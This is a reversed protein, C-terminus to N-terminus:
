LRDNRLYYLTAARHPVFCQAAAARIHDPTIKRYLEPEHNIRDTDGIFRYYCLNHARDAVRYQSFQFTAEYKNAVKSLEQESVASRCM